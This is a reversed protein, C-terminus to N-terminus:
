RRGQRRDSWRAYLALLAGAIALGALVMKLTPADVGISWLAAQVPQLADQTDAVVSATTAVAATASGIVTRSATLPAVTPMAASETMGGAQDDGEAVPASAPTLLYLAAEYSRRRVLGPLDQRKGDITGKTWMGFARGAGATDGANHLRLVSSGAFGKKGLGVNYALSTMAALQQATVPQALLDIVGSMFRQMDERLMQECEARSFGQPWLEKARALGAKGKLQQGTQPDILVRGWGVTVYGTPCLVPDSHPTRKDGDHWGEFRRLIQQLITVAERRVEESVAVVSIKGTNAAM